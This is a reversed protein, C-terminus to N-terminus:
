EKSATAQRQQTPSPTMSPHEVRQVGFARRDFDERTLARNIGFAARAGEGAAVISLQVDKVVNGAVFVGAVSTAEYQGCRIGGRRNFQCGLSEALKSRGTCTTDFFLASRELVGGDQFEIAELKGGVGRLATIPKEFIRINNRHLSRRDDASLTTRGHTCLAIDHTWGTLSRAIELASQAKGYVAVPAGRLEWGDCYPCQFVSTGFFAEIGAIEPLQDVVGTAILLKRSRVTLRGVRVKFTGDALKRAECVKAKARNINRYRQLELRATKRFDAPAMGDRTLFGYIAKSAWNRPTQDDCLLVKRCARGLVLAASLGAPGAGVIVVDFTDSKKV